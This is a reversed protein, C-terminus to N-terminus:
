KFKLKEKKTSIENKNSKLEEKSSEKIVEEVEENDKKSQLLEKKTSKRQSKTKRKNGVKEKDNDKIYDGLNNKDLEILNSYDNVKFPDIYKAIIDSSINLSKGFIIDNRKVIFERPKLDVAKNSDIAVESSKINNVKFAITNGAMAKCFSPLKDTTGRQLGLIVFVGVSRGVQFLHEMNNQIAKKIEKKEKNSEGDPMLTSYEDIVLYMTTWKKEKIKCKDIAQNFSKLNQECLKDEVYPELMKNREEVIKDLYNTLLLTKEVSQVYAKCVKAKRYIIQDIKDVQSIFIEVENKSCTAILNTLIIDILKSKGSGTTGTVILHPYEIMSTIIPQSAIDNSLYLEWPKLKIPEFDNVNIDKTIFKAELYNKKIIKKTIFICKFNDQITAVVKDSELDILTGGSFNRINCSFGYDEVKINTLSYTEDLDNDLGLHAMLKIWNDCLKAIEMRDNEKKIREERKIKKLLEKEEKKAKKMQNDKKYFFVLDM